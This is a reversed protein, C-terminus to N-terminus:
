LEIITGTYSNIRLVKLDKIYDSWRRDKNVREFEVRNYIIFSDRSTEQGLGLEAYDDQYFMGVNNKKINDESNFIDDKSEDITKPDKIGDKNRIRVDHIVLKGSPSFLISFSTTDTLDDENELESDSDIKENDNIKLDMVGVNEPLKIPQMGEVARFGSALNTNEFDHVIFIMYQCGKGDEQYKNQFRIGAYKQEKAAIARASAMSASIMCQAGGSSEMSNVFARMAPLGLTTLVAIAVIVVTMEILTLGAQKGKAKM